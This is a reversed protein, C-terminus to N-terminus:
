IVEVAAQIPKLAEMLQFTCNLEYDQFSTSVKLDIIAKKVCNSLLYFREIMLAISSWRTCCDLKLNLEKGVETKVYKQLIENKNSSKCFIKVTDRIKKIIPKLILNLEPVDEADFEIFEDADIEEEYESESEDDHEDEAEGSSNETEADSANL